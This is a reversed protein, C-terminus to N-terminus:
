YMAISYSCNRVTNIPFQTSLCKLNCVLFKSDSCADCLAVRKKIDGPKNGGLLFITIFLIYTKLSGLCCVGLHFENFYLFTVDILLFWQSPRYANQWLCTTLNKVKGEFSNWFLLFESFTHYSHVILISLRFSSYRQWWPSSFFQAHIM